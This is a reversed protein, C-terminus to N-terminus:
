VTHLEWLMAEHCCTTYVCLSSCIYIHYLSTNVIAVEAMLPRIQGERKPKDINQLRNAIDM